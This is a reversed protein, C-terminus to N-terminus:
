SRVMGLFNEYLTFGMNDLNRKAVPTTIGLIVLKIETYGSSKAREALARYRNDTEETWYLIEDLIFFAIGGGKTIAGTIGQLVHLKRLSDFQEHYLALMRALQEYSLVIAESDASLALSVVADRNRVGELYNLYTTITTLHKPSFKAHHLFKGRLEQEIKMSSLIQDNILNLESVSNNKLKSNIVMELQGDAIKFEAPRKHRVM